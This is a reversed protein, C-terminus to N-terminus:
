EHGLTWGFRTLTREAALSGPRFGGRVFLVPVTAQEALTRRTPDLEVGPLSTVIVSGAEGLIGEAGRPVLVPEAAAGTFRQLALSANALLKSADRRGASAEAGLLRLAVGHARALSAGFELAPWEDADGAFPVLVSGASSFARANGALVLTCSVEAVLAELEARPLSQAVILVEAGQEAALRAVDVGPTSSTFAATRAGFTTGAAALAGARGGLANPEAIEVVVLERDDARLPAVLELLATGLCLVCGHVAGMSRELEEGHQLITRELQQLAPGPEIGLEDILKRRGARYRALAEAQRGCRYLALMLQRLPRERLPEAAVLSELEAVVRAHEGLELQAEIREELAALCLDALRRAAAVAFPEERFEALPSGRWLALAAALLDVRRRADREAHAHEVRDEFRGLDVQERTARLRYGPRATEIAEGGLAKRLQSVYVQVLKPASAPPEDWLAEVLAAVAVVRGPELALRALLARPKSAPLALLVGDHEVEVPGLVRYDIVPPRSLRM